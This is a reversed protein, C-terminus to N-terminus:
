TCSELGSGPDGAAFLFGSDVAILGALWAALLQIPNIVKHLEVRNSRGNM